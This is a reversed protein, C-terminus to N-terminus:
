LGEGTLMELAELYRKRTGEVGADEMVWGEGEKGEPGSELGKRFGNRTLWDRLFQKDFSQQPGGPKYAEAPWYRSSDPTLCEDILILQESGPSSPDPILGFEFKTDALVVGRSLAFSAAENYLQVAAASLFLLLAGTRHIGKEECPPASSGKSHSVTLVLTRARCHRAPNVM